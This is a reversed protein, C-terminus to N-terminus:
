SRVAFYAGFCSMLLAVGFAGLSTAVHAGLMIGPPMPAAHGIVALYYVGALALVWKMFRLYLWNFRYMATAIVFSAVFAVGAITWWVLASRMQLGGSAAIGRWIATLDVGQKALLIQVILGILVGSTTAAAFAPLRRRSKPM